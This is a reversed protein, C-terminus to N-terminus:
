VLRSEVNAVAALQLTAYKAHRVAKAGLFDIRLRVDFQVRLAQRLRDGM